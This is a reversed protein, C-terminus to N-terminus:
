AALSAAGGVPTLCLKQSGRQELSIYAFGAVLHFSVSNREAPMVELRNPENLGRCLDDEREIVSGQGISPRVVALM